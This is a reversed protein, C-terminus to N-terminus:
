RQRIMLTVSREYTRGQETVIRNTLKYDYWEVGGAVWGTTTFNDFSEAGITMGDVPDTTWTSATIYDGRPSLEATWDVGYDLTDGPDHLKPGDNKCTTM